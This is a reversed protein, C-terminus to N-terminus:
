APEITFSSYAIQMEEIAVAGDKANLAPAKIKIPLCDTLQFRFKEVNAADKMVIVGQAVTGRGNQEGGAAARFWKWLELNTTMGRKLTLQGYTVPGVLHIQNLNNGGERVTKVENSMDLGDIESFRGECLKNTLGLASNNVKLTVDFRFTTLPYEEPTEPV